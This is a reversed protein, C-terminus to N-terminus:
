VSFDYKAELNKDIQLQNEYEMISILKLRKGPSKTFKYTIQFTGSKVLYHEGNSCKSPRLDFLFISNGDLYDKRSIDNGRLGLINLGDMLKEYMLLYNNNSFEPNIEIKKGTADLVIQSLNSSIFNFPNKTISGNFAEEEVFGVIVLNPITGSPALIKQTYSTISQDISDDNIRYVNVPYKLNSIELANLHALKIESNINAYTLLLQADLM